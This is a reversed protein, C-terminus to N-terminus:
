SITRLCCSCGHKSLMRDGGHQQGPVEGCGSLEVVAFEPQQDLLFVLVGDHEPAAAAGVVASGLAIRWGRPQQALAIVFFLVGAGILTVPTIPDAAPTRELGARYVQTLYAAVSVFLLAIALVWAALMVIKATRGPRALRAPLPLRAGAYAVAAAAAVLVVALVIGAGGSYSVWPGHGTM